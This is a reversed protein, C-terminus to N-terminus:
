RAERGRWSRLRAAHLDVGFRELEFSTIRMAVEVTSGINFSPPTLNLSRSRRRVDRWEFGISVFELLRHEIKQAIGRLEGFFSLDLDRRPLSLPLTFSVTESVPMPM